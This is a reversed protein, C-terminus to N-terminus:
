MQDWGWIAYSASRGMTEGSAKLTPLIAGDSAEFADRLQQRTPVQKTEFVTLGDALDGARKELHWVRVNQMHGFQGAVGRGGRM